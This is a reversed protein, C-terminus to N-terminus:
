HQRGQACLEALAQPEATTYTPFLPRAAPRGEMSRVAHLLNSSLVEDTLLGTGTSHLACVLHQGRGRRLLQWTDSHVALVSPFLQEPGKRLGHM